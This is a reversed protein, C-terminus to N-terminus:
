RQGIELPFFRLTFFNLGNDDVTLVAGKAQAEPLQAILLASDYGAGALRQILDDFDQKTETLFIMRDSFESYLDLPVWQVRTIIVKEPRDHIAQNLRQSFDEKKALLTLSYVQAALSLAVVLAVIGLAWPRRGVGRGWDALNVAALLGFLPYVGLLLRNGWHMGASGLEPAFVAYVACYTVAVIWIRRMGRARASRDDSTGLRLFALILVPAVTLFSNSSAVMYDIAGASRFYGVLSVISCGLAVLSFVPVALDHRSRSLRPNLLLLVLFPGSVLFSLWYHRTSAVFLNYFVAPRALLHGLVGSESAMLSGVHYGLPHGATKWQFSWLPILALVMTAGAIAIPRLGRPNHWYGACAVLVGCFLYMEDRFYVALAGLISGVVLDRHSNSGGFRLYFFLAWVSLCAAVTHEWFVVSYFWIPTCLGAILIALRMSAEDGGLARVIAAIGGLMVLSSLLPLVCLGRFGLAKFFVSSVTAFFPPFVPFLKGNHVYSFPDPIPKYKFNPDIVQGPWSISYDSYDSAIIAKVQLFKDANDVVWLGKGPLVWLTIAYVVGVIAIWPLVSRGARRGGDLGPM